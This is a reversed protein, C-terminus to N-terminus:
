EIEPLFFSLILAVPLSMPRRVFFCKSHHGKLSYCPFANQQNFNRLTIWSSFPLWKLKLHRKLNCTHPQFALRSLSFRPSALLRTFLWPCATLLYPSAVLLHCSHQAFPTMQSNSTEGSASIFMRKPVEVWDLSIRTGDNAALSGRLRGDGSCM